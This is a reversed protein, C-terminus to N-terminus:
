SFTSQVRILEFRQSSIEISQRIPETIVFGLYDLGFLVAGVVPEYRANIIRVGSAVKKLQQHITNQLLRSPNKFVGGSLVVDVNFSTMDFRQLGAVILEALGNGFHKVLTCAVQDKAYVARFVLPALEKIDNLEIHGLSDARILTDVSTLNFFDLLYKTLLTPSERGTQARYVANLARRGLAIAGQLDEDHYLGYIFTQGMPSILACNAGTGAVLVAGSTAMTGGRFAILSDNIVMVQKALRLSQLANQLVPYEDPWNLGAMGAVLLSVKQPHISASLLAQTVADHVATKAKDIGSLSYSAGESRGVSLLNGGSDSVVAQTKTGGQDVGVIYSM